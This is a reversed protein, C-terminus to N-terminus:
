VIFVGSEILDLVDINIDISYEVQSKCDVIAYHMENLQSYHAYSNMM